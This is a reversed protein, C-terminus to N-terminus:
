PVIFTCASTAASLFLSTLFKQQRSISEFPTGINTAPSSNMCVCAPRVGLVLVILSGPEVPVQDVGIGVDLAEKEQHDGKALGM